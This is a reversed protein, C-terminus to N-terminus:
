KGTGIPKKMSEQIEILSQDLESDRDILTGAIAKVENATMQEKLSNPIAKIYEVQTKAIDIMSNSLNRIEAATKIDTKGSRLDTITQMLVTRVDVLTLGSNVKNTNM